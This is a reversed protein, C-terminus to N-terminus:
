AGPLHQARALERAPMRWPAVASCPEIADKSRNDDLSANLSGSFPQFACSSLIRCVLYAPFPLSRFYGNRM